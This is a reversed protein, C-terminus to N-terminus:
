LTLIECQADTILVTNEYHASLSGDATVVTWKDKLVKIAGNGICVMPEIALTMGPMLRAGKKKQRYNPIAPEEHLDRGIGHGVFERVVSYGHQNVFDEIAAGIQHLHERKKAFECGAFFSERTVAMLRNAEESIEGVGFTRAADAHFGDIFAGIDISVIDGSILKRIGPIGHIVENNVSACISKPYGRYNKFSAVAGKSQLFEECASDLENTTINPVIMTELMKLTEAIIFCARRMKEIETKSKIPIAM